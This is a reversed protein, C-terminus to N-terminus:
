RAVLILLLLTVFFFSLYLRLSGNQLVRVRHSTAVFGAVVPRYLFREYVPRIEEEYHITASVYPSSPREITVKRQPRLVPKFILRLPKAIATATYQMRPTLDIGCVWTPSTRTAVSGSTLRAYLWPLIGCVLLAMVVLVPVYNPTTSAAVDARSWGPLPAPTARTLDGTVPRILRTAVVPLLGFIVCGAGLLTMGALMTRDVEHAEDAATTRPQALFGTAFFRVFGVLALAATFGIAAVTLAAGAGTIGSDTIAGLHFLSQLLIWESAFGNLPPLAAIAVSGLLALGATKPMRHILGGLRELDRSGTATQVAGAVGFLLSKFLAHNLTHFLAATLALSSAVGQGISQLLLAAGIGIVILGVNEVTSWALIRKMDRDMLSYLIGLVASVAGVLILVAGWWQPAGTTFDFFVMIMGFIAMKVMVGSMLASGHAPAAPHARPLWVHLPILGAKAGFGILSLIFIATREWGALSGAALRWDSFQWSGANRGLLLFAVLLFATGAHTMAAYVFAARRNSENRGNGIVLFFSVIAMAEWGFLFPVVGAAIVVMSMTALFLAMTADVWERSPGHSRAYSGPALYGIGYISTAIAPLGIVLLFWASLTDLRFSMQLYPAPSWGDAVLTKDQLLSNIAILSAIVGGAATILSPAKEALNTRRLVVASVAALVFVAPPSCITWGSLAFGNM